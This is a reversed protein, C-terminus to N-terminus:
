FETCNLLGASAAKQLLPEAKEFNPARTPSGVWYLLGLTEQCTADNADSCQLLWKEAADWDTKGFTGVIHHGALTQMASVDGLRAAFSLNKEASAFERRALADTGWSYFSYKALALMLWGVPVLLAVIAGGLLLKGSRAVISLRYGLPFTAHM